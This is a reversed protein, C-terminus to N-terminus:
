AIVKRDVSKGANEPMGKQLKRKRLDLQRLCAQTFRDEYGETFEVKVKIEGVHKM